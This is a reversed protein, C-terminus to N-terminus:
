EDITGPEHPVALPMEMVTTEFIKIAVAFTSGTVPLAHMEELTYWGAAAADDSAQLTGTVNAALFVALRYRKGNDGHLIMRDLATLGTASLNTEETLERLAADEDTEGPEVRGGPFAYYGSAPPRNRRVLLFRGKEFAVISVAHIDGM